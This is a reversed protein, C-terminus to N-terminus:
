VTELNSIIKMLEYIQNRFKDPRQFLGTFAFSNKNEVPFQYWIGPTCRSPSRYASAPENVPPLSSETNVIGDNEHMKPTVYPKDDYYNEYTSIILSLPFLVGAKLTPITIKGFLNKTVSGSISLYYTNPAAILRNNLKTMELIGTAAIINDGRRDLYKEIQDDNFKYITFPIKKDDGTALDLSFAHQTLSLGHATYYPDVYETRSRVFEIGIGAKAYLKQFGPIKEELAQFTTIGENIGCVTTVCHVINTYGGRFLPSLETDNTYSKEEDSGNNLLTVLLRAVPAGFGFSILTIKKIKGDESLTGWDPVLPTKYTKGFREHGYKRSHAEGYDVTGGVIQAYLECARDWVGSLICFEATHCQFGMDKIITEANGATLGIAPMIKGIKSNSKYSAFGPVLIVPYANNHKIM